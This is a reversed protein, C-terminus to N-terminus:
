LAAILTALDPTPMPVVSASQTEPAARADQARPALEGEQAQSAVQAAAEDDGPHRPDSKPGPAWLLMVRASRGLERALAAYRELPWRQAPRRASIHLAVWPGAGLRSRLHGSNERDPFIRLPGPAGKVGLARGLEFVREVEHQGAPFIEAAAIVRGPKLSRALRLTQPAPAPVIVCDFRAARLRSALRLRDRAYRLLGRSRHKLKEYVFLEDVSPNRALVEANYTTV